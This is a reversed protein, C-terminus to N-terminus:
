GCETGRVAIMPINRVVVQPRGRKGQDRRGIHRKILQLLESIRRGLSITKAASSFRYSRRCGKAPLKSDLWRFVQRGHQDKVENSFRFTSCQGIAASIGTM